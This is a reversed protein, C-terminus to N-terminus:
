GGNGSSSKGGKTKQINGTPTEKVLNEASNDCMQKHVGINFAMQAENTSTIIKGCKTCVWKFGDIKTTEM